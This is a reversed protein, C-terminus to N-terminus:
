AVHKDPLSIRDPNLFRFFNLNHKISDMETIGLVYAILSGTVSGRGYGQWIDREHCWDIINKQLLMYDITDLKIYTEM